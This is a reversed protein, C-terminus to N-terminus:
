IAVRLGISGFFRGGKLEETTLPQSPLGVNSLDGFDIPDMAKQYGIEGVVNLMLLNLSVDAFVNWAATSLEGAMRGPLSLAQGGNASLCEATECTMVWGLSVDSSYKDYGAGVALDFMLIGKSAIARVSLTELDTSFEGADGAELDGFSVDGMRRYMGSISVGPVILGQRLIGIRAGVGVNMIAESLGFDDIQPVVAVSGLLDVSGVGGIMPALSVGNFLGIAVDGQVGAVPIGTTEMAGLQPGTLRATYGGFLNPVEALAVNARATVSVRPLIGLRTGFTTATGLVPNGGSFAIGVSPQTNTLANVVQGCLYQFQETVSASLGVVPLNQAACSRLLDSQAQAPLAVAFTLAAALLTRRM